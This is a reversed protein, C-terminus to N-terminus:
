IEMEECSIKGTVAATILASRKEKLLEISKQIEILLKSNKKDAAELYNIIERQEETPPITIYFNGLAEFNLGERGSGTQSLDIQHQGINSRLVFYLFKTEIKKKPRIICVHQNVNAERQLGDVYFCRGISAGTINILVDGDLVKSNSMSEHTDADIFVIDDMRFGDFHINQSRFLPIGESQYSEAGGKPTVGSGIKSVVHKIRWIEWHAPVKGLWEPKSFKMGVDSNLGCTVTHSIFEAHKEELLALMNEKEAILADILTTERDLYCAILYQVEYSPIPLKISSIFDWSARPMKAGFTSADVQGIFNPSLISYLLFRPHVNSQVRLVLLETSCLGKKDAHHAKALYPRLKGFLVDGAYFVNATGSLSDEDEPIESNTKPLLKGTWSEINELGLYDAHDSSTDMREIRLPAIFKLRKETVKGARTKAGKLTIAM